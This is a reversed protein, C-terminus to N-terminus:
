AKIASVYSSIMDMYGVDSIGEVIVHQSGSSVIGLADLIVKTSSKARCNTRIDNCVQTFGSKDEKYVGKINYLRNCYVLYPSHTSYIVQHHKSVHDKLFTRIDTQSNPHLNVAPEDLLFIVNKYLKVEALLRVVFNFFLRFGGSRDQLIIQEPRKGDSVYINCSAGDSEFHFKYDGESCWKNFESSLSEAAQLLNLRRKEKGKYSPLNELNVGLYLFLLIAFKFDSKNSEIKYRNNKMVSFNFLDNININPARTGYDPHYIFMPKSKLIRWYLSSKGCERLDPTTKEGKDDSIYIYFDNYYNKTILLFNSLKVKEYRAKVTDSETPKLFYDYKENFDAFEKEDIKFLVEIFPESKELKVGKVYEERPFDREFDIKNTRNFKWLALM